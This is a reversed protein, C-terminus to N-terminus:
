SVDRKTVTGCVKIPTPKVLYYYNATSTNGIQLGIDYVYTAEVLSETEGATLVIEYYGNVKSDSSTLTKSIAFNEDKINAKMGFYIKDNEQLTYDTGDVKPKIRIYTTEGQYITKFEM